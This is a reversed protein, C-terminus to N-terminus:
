EREGPENDFENLFNALSDFDIEGTKQNITTQLLENLMEEGRQLIAKRKEIDIDIITSIHELCEQYATLRDADTFENWSMKELINEITTKIQDLIALDLSPKIGRVGDWFGSTLHEVSNM